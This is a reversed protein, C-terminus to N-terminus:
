FRAWDPRMPTVRADGATLPVGSELSELRLLALGLGDRGSRFEGAETDGAMVATGPAPPPGDVAVPLLRKRVLGRYKTRATLEQGVYCGKDWSVGNLEDFGNELLISREPTLDRSGDPVGLALRTRDWLGFDGSPFPALADTDRPIALRVGLGAHRPDVYALGGGFDATAGADGPLGASAPAEEGLLAVVQYPETVDLVDVDSRLRYGQLRRLLDDRRAAECDLVLAGDFPLAIVDHLYKGQPTLLAAWIARGDEVRAVDNSLLGQLFPVRDPGTVAILGRDPLPVAIPLPM